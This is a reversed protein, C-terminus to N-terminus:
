TAEGTTELFNRWGQDSAVIDGCLDYLANRVMPGTLASLSSEVPGPHIRDYNELTM